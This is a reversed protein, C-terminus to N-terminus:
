PTKLTVICVNGEKSYVTMAYPTKDPFKSECFLSYASFGEEQQEEGGAEQKAASFIGEM